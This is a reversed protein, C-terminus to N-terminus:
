GWRMNHQRAERARRQERLMDQRVEHSPRWRAQDDAGFRTAILLSRAFIELM